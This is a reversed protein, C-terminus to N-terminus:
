YIDLHHETLDQELEEDYDILECGIALHKTCVEPRVDHMWTIYSPDILAVENPTKGKYKGFTLAINDIDVIPLMVM